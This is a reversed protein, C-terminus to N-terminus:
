GGSPRRRSHLNLAKWAGPHVLMRKGPILIATRNRYKFTVIPRGSGSDDFM